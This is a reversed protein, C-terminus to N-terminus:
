LCYFSSYNTGLSMTKVGFPKRYERNTPGPLPKTAIQIGTPKLLPRDHHNISQNIPNECLLSIDFIWGTTVYPLFVDNPLFSRVDYEGNWSFASITCFINPFLSM